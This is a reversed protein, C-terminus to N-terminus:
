RVMDRRLVLGGGGLATVDVARWGGRLLGVPEGDKGGHGHEDSFIDHLAAEEWHGGYSNRLADRRVPAVVLAVAVAVRM